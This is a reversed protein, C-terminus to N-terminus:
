GVEGHGGDVPGSHPVRPKGLRDVAVDQTALAALAHWRLRDAAAFCRQCGSSTMRSTSGDSGEGWSVHGVHEPTTTGLHGAFNGHDLHDVAVQQEAAQV